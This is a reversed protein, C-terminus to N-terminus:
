DLIYVRCLDGDVRIKQGNKIKRTAEQTGVVCPIGFERAVILAHALYGGGDTVIGKIIDFVPTWSPTTGTVVLISGPVVKDMERDGMCVCATGEVVGPAGACGVVAAGVEEPKALPAAVGAVAFIVDAEALEQIASPDGLLMPLEREIKQYGAYELKRKKILSHIDCRHQKICAFLIEDHTLFLIDDPHDIMGVNAFRRGLELPALRLAAFSIGENYKTHEESYVHLAQSCKMLSEFVGREERPVKAILKKELEKRRKELQPRAEVTGAVNKGRIVYRQVEELALTPAELWTPTSIELFRRRMWGYEQLVEDSFIKFWQKGRDTAKLKALLEEPKSEKFLQSLGMDAAEVAVKTLVETVKTFENEFGSHLTSYEADEPKINLSQRLMARFQMHGQALAYMPYFHMEAARKQFYWVEAFHSYLEIDSMAQLNIGWFKNYYNQQFETKLEGWVAQPDELIVRMKQRWVPERQKQEEATPLIATLYAHGKYCRWDVGRTKPCSLTEASYEMGFKGWTLSNEIFLPCWPPPYWMAGLVWVKYNKPDLDIKEDLDWMPRDYAM